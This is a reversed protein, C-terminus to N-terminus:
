RCTHLLLTYFCYQNLNKRLPVAISENMWVALLSKTFQLPDSVNIAVARNKLKLGLLGKSLEEAENWLNAYSLVDGSENSVAKKAGFDIAAKRIREM